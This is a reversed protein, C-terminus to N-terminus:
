VSELFVDLWGSDILLYIMITISIFLGILIIPNKLFPLIHRGVLFGGIVLCAIAIFFFLPFVWLGYVVSLPTLIFIEDIPSILLLGIAFLLVGIRIM